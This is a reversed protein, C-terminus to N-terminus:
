KGERAALRAKAEAVLQVLTELTLTYVGVTADKIRSPGIQRRAVLEKRKGKQSLVEVTVCIYLEGEEM